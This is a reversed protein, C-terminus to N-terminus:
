RHNRKLFEVMKPISNQPFEHGANRDEIIIEKNELHKIFYNRRRNPLTKMQKLFKLYQKSSFKQIKYPVIKDNKRFSIWVSKQPATKALSWWSWCGHHIRLNKQDCKGYFM